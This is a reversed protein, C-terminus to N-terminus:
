AGANEGFFENYLAAVAKRRDNAKVGFMISIESSGQNIMEINVGANAFAQTARAAVGVTFRMGEGVVMVLALGHEVEVDDAGLVNRIDAIVRKEAEPGFAKERLIVSINDIGSPIHEFSLGEKELIELLRRGFGVERNMLYKDVYITCFGVDSAVGVVRSQQRSHRPVIMTGPADPNNTNKICIAIGAHATPLIAEEHLVSFGAYSLERMEHYTLESIAAPNPVISPDVCFVSDVDTFNEYVDAKVAAALIAGTIDSGGRPFTAVAGVRTYGFFGPFVTLGDYDRITALKAYSEPLLQANGFEDTLLMGADKPNLYRAKVGRRVLEAAVVRASNDEGAAKVADLYRERKSIDGAVVAKINAEVDRSVNEAVGLERCIAAYREVVASIEAAADGGALRNEACAILMDTVKTDTKSRKGPASVVIIRRDNDSLVIDVVKCLQRADALSTGGFKCVKM